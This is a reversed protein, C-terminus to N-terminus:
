RRAFRSLLKGGIVDVAENLEEVHLLRCTFYFVLTACGIAASVQVLHLLFGGLPLMAAAASVMWATLAMPLSAACIRLVTAGLRRGDLRGLRRRMFLALLLFNVLAVASTSCALGVHGFPGVLFSNMLYNVAISGLSILMPTRADNLAYFAPSLVKIAGYGALGIGYAALAHATQMTDFATFKGHEFILAVIPQALVALGLASPICLLFGLALSHVLTQRFVTYDPNASSRSLSPLTATAIAVGFVGIPFQMFRFAYNLWSVPGNAVAGTAPDVIASAFNTNVFVNIQVAATGIVAPGMLRIIQRVGPDNFGIMPRYSVGCRKLSPWQVALEFFGGIVVGYAMGAIPSIGIAPGLLFGLLLGGVIIGINFFASALAPMGYINFANLMGMAQAALAILLLFPIMIRTLSITLEAKGPVAFFGPALLGVIESTFFWALISILIIVIVSLTAVRNSLRIADERGKSQLTQTFTTVFASSLAGEALLDRLLNPVRFATLFADYHLGAGFLAAFVQDRVLGLIRSAMVALSVIGANRAVNARSQQASNEDM